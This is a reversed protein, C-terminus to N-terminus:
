LHKTRILLVSGRAIVGPVATLLIPALILALVLSNTIKPLLWLMVLTWPVMLIALFLATLKSGLYNHVRLAIWAGAVAGIWLLGLGLLIGFILFIIAGLTDGLACGVDTGCDRQAPGRAFMLFIVLEGLAGGVTAGVLTSLYGRPAKWSIKAQSPPVVVSCSPGTVNEEPTSPDDVDVRFLHTAAAAGLPPEVKVVLQASGRPALAVESTLPSFWGLPTSDLAVVTATGRVQRDTMNTITFPMKGMRNEALHLTTSPASIAFPSLM